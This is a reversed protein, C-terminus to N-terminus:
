YNMHFPSKNTLIRIEQFELEGINECDWLLQDDMETLANCKLHSMVASFVLNEILM